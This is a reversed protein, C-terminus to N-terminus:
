RANADRILQLAKDLLEDRGARVGAITPTQPHTPLIGQNHLTSGDHRVVRMGTWYLQFGGPLLVPNVNGNAGATPAGVIDALRYGDVYGLISESYSKASGDTLFVAKGTIQPEAPTLNWSSPRWGNTRSGDPHTIHPVFMWQREDQERILHHLVDHNGNPYGRLDFVVGSAAAIDALKSQIVPWSARTLDVYYVGDDLSRIPDGPHRGIYQKRRDYTLILTKQSGDAREFTVTVQTGKGGYELRHLSGARKWQPSGSIRSFWHAKWEDTPRGDISVVVDGTNVQEHGTAIVVLADEVWDFVMPLGGGYRKLQKHLVSGHGDELREVMVDLTHAFDAVGADDATDTLAQNLADMWNVEVVDFYPYFHQFMNWAIVIAGLRTDEDAVNDVSVAEVAAVLASADSRPLTHGDKSWLALPIRATYGAIEVTSNEGVTPHQEFLAGDMWGSRRQVRVSPMNSPAEAKEVVTEFGDIKGYWESVPEPSLIPKWGDGEAVAVEIGSARMGGAYYLCVGASALLIDDAFTRVFEHPTWEDTLEIPASSFEDARDEKGRRYAQAVLRIQGRGMAGSQKLMARVRVRKGKVVERSLSRELCAPSAKELPPLRNLRSSVYPSSLTSDLGAGRHQWAVIEGGPPLSLAAHSAPARGHPYLQMTPAIPSFIETLARALADADAANKVRGAGYVALKNWDIVAAEDSPHFYKVYGYLRAFARLNVLRQEEVAVPPVLAASGPNKVSCASVAALLCIWLVNNVFVRM